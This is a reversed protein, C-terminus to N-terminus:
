SFYFDAKIGDVDMCNLLRNNIPVYGSFEARRTEGTTEFFIDRYETVAEIKLSGRSEYLSIIASAPVVFSPFYVYEGAGVQYGSPHEGSKITTKRDNILFAGHSDTIVAPSQGTNKFIPIIQYTVVKDNVIEPQFRVTTPLLYARVQAQGIERTDSLMTRTDRLTLFVMVVAALTLFTMLWQAATDDMYVVRGILWWRQNEPTIDHAEYGSANPSAQEGPYTELLLTSIITGFIGISVGVTFGNRWNFQSM